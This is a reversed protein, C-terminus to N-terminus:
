DNLKVTAYRDITGFIILCSDPGTQPDPELQSFLELHIHM